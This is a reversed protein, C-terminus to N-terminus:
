QPEIADFYSAQKRFNKTHNQQTRHKHPKAWRPRQHNQFSHKLPNISTPCYDIAQHPKTTQFAPIPTNHHCIELKSLNPNRKPNWLIKREQCSYRCAQKLPVKPQCIELKTLDSNTTKLHNKHHRGCSHTCQTKPPKTNHSQRIRNKLKIRKSKSYTPHTSPLRETTM